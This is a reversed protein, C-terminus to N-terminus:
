MKTIILIILIIIGIVLFIHEAIYMVIEMGIKALTNFFKKMIKGGLRRIIRDSKQVMKKESLFLNCGSDKHYLDGGYM